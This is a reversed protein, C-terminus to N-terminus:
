YGSIAIRVAQPWRDRAIQLLEAGDMRPMRVDTVIVDFRHEALLELAHEASRVFEMEWKDRLRRLRLRMAELAPEDDDVFLVRKVCGGCRSSRCYPAPPHVHHRCQPQERRRHPRRTERRHDFPRHHPGPR